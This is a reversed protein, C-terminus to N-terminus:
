KATEKKVAYWLFVIMSVLFYILNVFANGNYILVGFLILLVSIFLIILVNERKLRLKEFEFSFGLGFKYLMWGLYVGIIGTLAQLYYGKLAVTQVQEISLFGFSLYVIVTQLLGFAFYGTVGTILSWIFPVRVITAMFLMSFVLNIIPVLYSLETDERIAYSQLNMLLVIVLVPILYTRLDFRFIYLTLAYVSVGEITSFFLFLLFNIM